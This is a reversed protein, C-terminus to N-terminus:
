TILIKCCSRQGNLTVSVIYFGVPLAIRTERSIITNDYLINGPLSIVQVTAQVPSKDLILWFAGKEGIVRFLNNEVRKLSTEDQRKKLELRFDDVKFWGESGTAASGNAKRGSTRLGLKLTEGEAISVDVKMEQLTFNSTTTWDAYTYNEGAILNLGYNPPFGYYQVNNNAFLRQTTLMDNAIAMKCRVTYEGAPLDGIYQYLEFNDPMPKSNYWCANNGDKNNADSNIGFSTGNFGTKTDYWGYPTGYVTSGNNLQGAAKYEFSANMIHATLTNVSKKYDNIAKQLNEVATVLETMSANANQDVTRAAQIGSQFTSRAGQPYEGAVTGGQTSDHLEQAELILGSLQTKLTQIDWERILELRFNDVKFWGANDTASTGDSYKNSSRIGIKLDEGTLVAVKVAMERLDLMIGDSSEWGCQYGAFTNKEGATLNSVYDSEKGYYQVYKNAFLRQTTMDNRPVGLQCRVMYEGAPLGRVTQSLEFTAPMPTSAYWCVNGGHYNLADQNTGWSNGKLTGTHTWGYPDGRTTGSLQNGSSDKEFDPNIIVATQPSEPSYTIDVASLALGPDAFYIKVNVDKETASLAAIERGAYGRLVGSRWESQGEVTKISTFVPAAGEVSVAYRLDLGPYLPFSPLCKITITNKGPKLRVNYEVYPASTINAATYQTMNFPLVTLSAGAVGLGEIVKVTGTKTRYDKASITTVEETPEPPFPPNALTEAGATYPEYFFGLSNPSYSMMGDWKGGAIVKNYTYTLDRITRYAENAKGSIRLAKAPEGRAAYHFSLKAGLIKENMAATCQVPYTILQFYAAELREPIQPELAKVREALAAYDTLRQETEAVTFASYDLLEPRGSGSLHYHQEQIEAISGALDSGFIEEAWARFYGQAKEPRWADVNWALDMAFQYEFEAPKIDGVNFVWINKANLDYAKSMEYSIKVPSTSSLWLYSQRPPGLYSFHYYVGGGGSRAQEAPTSLQRIYGHNDDPWLLTVDVPLDIGENYHLLAEKYPCFLQPVSTKPKELHTELINRQTSIIDKLAVARESDTNYGLMQSDHVGRMGLTYIAETGKSEKVRDTWYNKIVTSNTKWNWEGRTVGPYESAFNKNWEDENNRLMPECHSAGLVIAYKRAVEPNEAYYWFAKTCSHMAPWLFNSKTRLMLEFIKEYTRPGIDGKGNRITKDMKKAAWPQMAWDEDNIFLGRYKVSPPGFLEDGSVYIAERSKPLVDAWWVWPSVGMMRSLEFLGFATGRPDSGAIVLAQSIGSLPNDVVSICFTEWKGELRTRNIKGSAALLDILASKGLTGIIVPSSNNDPATKIVPTLGTLLNIDGSFAQAAVNVVEADANDVVLAAATNNAVLPFSGSGSTGSIVIGEAFSPFSFLISFGVFTLRQLFSFNITRKKKM